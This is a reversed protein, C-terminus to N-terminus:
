SLLLKEHTDARREGQGSWSSELKLPVDGCSILHFRWEGAISDGGELIM